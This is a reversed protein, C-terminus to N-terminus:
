AGLKAATGVGAAAAAATGDGVFDSVTAGDPSIKVIKPTAIAAYITGDAAAVMSTVAAGPTAHASTLGAPTVKRLTNGAGNSAIYMNGGSMVIPGPNNFTAANGTGDAEANTGSQGLFVSGTAPNVSTDYKRVVHNAADTVYLMGSSDLALGAQTLTALTPAAALAAAPTDTAITSAEGTTNVVSRILTHDLVIYQSATASAVLLSVALVISFVKM